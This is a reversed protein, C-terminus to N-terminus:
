SLNKEESLTEKVMIMFMFEQLNDTVGITGIHCQLGIIGDLIPHEGCIGDIGDGITGGKDM